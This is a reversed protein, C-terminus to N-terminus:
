HLLRPYGSKRLVQRNEEAYASSTQSADDADNNDENSHDLDIAATAASIIAEHQEQVAEIPVPVTANNEAM